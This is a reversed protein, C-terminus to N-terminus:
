HKSMSLIREVENYPLPEVKGLKMLHYQLEAMFELTEMRHFAEKMTGGVAIAGHKELIFSVATGLSQRLMNALYETGPTAYPIMPVERGLVMLAEPTLGTELGVGAVAMVTCFMPHCHVVANVDPRERYFALHFPTEISPKGKGIVSGSAIDVEIIDNENLLGKCSGSPTILMVDGKRVSINGSKGIVLTKEYLLGGYRVIEEREHAYNM